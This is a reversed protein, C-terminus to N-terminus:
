HADLNPNSFHLFIESESKKKTQRECVIDSPPTKDNLVKVLWPFRAASLTNTAAVCTYRIYFISFGGSVVPEFSKGESEEKGGTESTQRLM